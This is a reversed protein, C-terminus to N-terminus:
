VVAARTVEEYQASGRPSKTVSQFGGWVITKWKMLIVDSGVLFDKFIEVRTNSIM